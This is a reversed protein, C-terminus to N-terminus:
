WERELSGNDGGLEPKVIKIKPRRISHTAMLTMHKILRSTTHPALQCPM